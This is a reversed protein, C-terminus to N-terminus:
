SKDGTSGEIWEVTQQRTRDVVLRVVDPRAYHGAPDFNQREQAVRTPDLDVTLLKECGVVPEIIWEGDPGAVCSGGDYLTEGPGAIRDRLPLDPPLDEERILGCVSAVFCRSEKAVFRTIDHTLRLAGPWLMVHLDEGAAYLAARTLPMWNEWCNLAGVSMSGIRHTTLGAGDGIGWSLREEYTPMLKRHISLVAGSADIMVRSCYISYGGRNAAREAIGVIVAISNTRAAERIEDLHGADPDVVQDLYMAHLQKQDPDDFKAGGTRSLWVPYAPLLSEGFAVLECGSGAAEDIRQVIKATTGARNLLKPAIQALAIKM